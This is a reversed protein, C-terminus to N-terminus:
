GAHSTDKIRREAERFVESAPVRGNNLKGGIGLKQCKLAIMTTSVGITDACEVYSRGRQRMQRLKNEMEDTWVIRHYGVGGQWKQLSRNYFAQVLGSEHQLVCGLGSPTQFHGVIRGGFPPYAATSRAFDGIEFKLNIPPMGSPVSEITAFRHECAMCRRRRRIGDTHPRSDKVQIRGSGCNPCRIGEAEGM